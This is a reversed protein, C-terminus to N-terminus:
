NSKDNRMLAIISPPVELAIAKLLMRGKSSSSSYIANNYVASLAHALKGAKIGEVIKHPEHDNCRFILQVKEQGLYVELAFHIPRESKTLGYFLDKECVTAVNKIVTNDLRYLRSTVRMGLKMEFGEMMTAILVKLRTLVLRKGLEESSFVTLCLAAFNVASALESEKPENTRL